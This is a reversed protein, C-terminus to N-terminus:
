VLSTWAHRCEILHREMNSHTAHVVCISWSHLALGKLIKIRLSANLVVEMEKDKDKLRSDKNVNRSDM